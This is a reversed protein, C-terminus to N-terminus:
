IRGKGIMGDDGPATFSLSVDDGSITVESTLDSVQGPPVIGFSVLNSIESGQKADFARMAVYYLLDNQGFASMNVLLTVTEGANVPTLDGSVLDTAEILELNNWETEETIMSFNTDYRIEYRDASFADILSM